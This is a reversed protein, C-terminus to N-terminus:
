LTESRNSSEQNEQKDKIEYIPMELSISEENMVIKSVSFTVSRQM